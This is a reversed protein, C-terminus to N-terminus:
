LRSLPRPFSAHHAHLAHQWVIQQPAQTGRTVRLHAPTSAGRWRAPWCEMALEVAEEVEFMSRWGDKETGEDKRVFRSSCVYTVHSHRRQSGSEM